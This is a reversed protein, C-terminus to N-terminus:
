PLAFRLPALEVREVVPEGQLFGVIADAIRPSSLFLDDDHSAGEIILHHGRPFGPLLDEANEPPTKVDLSGSLFLVPMSGAVQSRYADGLDEVPWGACTSRLRANIVDGLIATRGQERILEARASTAGSACDMSASMVIERNDLRSRLAFLGLETYDGQLLPLAHEVLEVIDEREGLSGYVARRLDNAGVVVRHEQKTTPHKVAVTVPERELRHLAQDLAGVFDPVVRVARPDARIAEAVRHLVADIRAPLKYTHDPGEVGALIARHVREPHMRIYALGLHTGYSIGWLTLQEAGLARRLAELDEVSELTNYASLDAESSWHKWCKELFPRKAERLVAEDEPRDLPYSWSDPCVLYPETGWVGRQDYAIVDAIERLRQFLPFRDGSSSWTGSGGPGGALYVIPPGPDAATTAFRVFHVTIQRGGPDAHREPVRLTGEEARVVAPRLFYDTTAFRIPTLTLPGSVVAPGTAERIPSELDPACGALGFLCLLVISKRM